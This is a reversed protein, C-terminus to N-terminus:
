QAASKVRPQLMKGIMPNTALDLPSKGKGNRKTPDAGHTLLLAVIKASGKQVAAHLPSDGNTASVATSAGHDLLIEVCQADNVLCACHLLHAGKPFSREQHLSLFLPSVKANANSHDLILSFADLAGDLLAEFAMYDLDLGSEPLWKLIGLWNQAAARKFVCEARPGPKLGRELLLLLLSETGGYVARCLLVGGSIQRDQVGRELLLRVLSESQASIALDLPGMQTRTVRGYPDRPGYERTTSVGRDTEFCYGATVDSKAGADLLLRVVETHGRKCAALLPTKEWGKGDPIAGGELLLKASEADGRVAAEQLPSYYAINITGPADGNPDCGLGILAALGAHFRHEVALLVLSRHGPAIAAIAFCESPDVCSTGFPCRACVSRHESQGYSEVTPHGALVCRLFGLRHEMIATEANTKGYYRMTSTNTARPM